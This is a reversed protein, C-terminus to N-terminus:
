EPVRSAQVAKSMNPLNKAPLEQFCKFLCINRKLICPDQFTEKFLIRIFIRKKIKKFKTYACKPVIEKVGNRLGNSIIIKSVIKALQTAKAIQIGKGSSSELAVLELRTLGQHHKTKSKSFGEQFHSSLSNFNHFTFIDVLSSFM